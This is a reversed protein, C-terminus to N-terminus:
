VALEPGDMREASERLMAPTVHAADESLRAATRATRVPYLGFRL